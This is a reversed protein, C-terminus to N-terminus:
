PIPRLHPSAALTQPYIYQSRLLPLLQPSGAAALEKVILETCYYATTDKTDFRSDFPKEQALLRNLRPILRTTDPAPSLRRATIAAVTGSAAFDAPTEKVIRGKDPSMHILFVSDRRRVIFGCHSIGDDSHGGLLRVADSKWSHGTSFFIDGTHWRSTDPPIFAPTSHLYFLYIATLISVAVGAAGIIYLVPRPLLRRLPKSM